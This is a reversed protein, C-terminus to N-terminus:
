VNTDIGILEMVAYKPIRYQKGVKISKIGGTRVFCYATNLSVRLCQALEPVDLVEPLAEFDVTSNKEM